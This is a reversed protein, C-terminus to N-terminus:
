VTGEEEKIMRMLTALHDYARSFLAFCDLTRYPFLSVDPSIAMTGRFRVNAMSRAFPRFDTDGEFPLYGFDDGKGDDLSLRLLHEAAYPPLASTGHYRWAKAPSFSVGHYGDSVVRVAAEFHPASRDNEILLRVEKERALAALERLRSLGTQSVPPAGIGTTPVFIVRHIGIGAAFSFYSDYLSRLMEWTTEDPTREDTPLWGEPRDKLGPTEWILNVGESPLRLAEALLGAERAARPEEPSLMGGSLSFSTETFGSAVAYAFRRAASEDDKKCAISFHKKM